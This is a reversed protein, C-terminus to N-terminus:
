SARRTMKRESNRAGSGIGRPKDRSLVECEQVGIGALCRRANGEKILERATVDDLTFRLEGKDISSYQEVYPNQTMETPSIREDSEERVHTTWIM